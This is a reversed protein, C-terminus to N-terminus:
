VSIYWAAAENLSEAPVVTNQILYGRDIRVKRECAVDYVRRNRGRDNWEPPIRVKYAALDKCFYITFTLLM